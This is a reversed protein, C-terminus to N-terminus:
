KRLIKNELLDIIQSSKSKKLKGVDIIVDPRNDSILFQEIIKDSDINAPFGSINASTQVLPKKIKELVANLLPYDPVRLALTAGDVGFLKQESKKRKLVFTYKGPWKGKIEKEQNKDIECIEKVAKLSAVFVPLKKDRPRQKIKFIKEVAKKNSADAIFGYVTDTPFVLVNGDNLYKVIVDIEKKSFNQPDIKIIQM